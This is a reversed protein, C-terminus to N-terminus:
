VCSFGSPLILYVANKNGYFLLRSFFHNQLMHLGCLATYSSKLDLTKGRLALLELQKESHLCNESLFSKIDIESNIMNCKRFDNYPFAFNVMKLTGLIKRMEFRGAPTHTNPNCKFGQLVSYVMYFLTNTHTDTYWSSIM